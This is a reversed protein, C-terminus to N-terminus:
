ENPYFGNRLLYVIEEGRGGVQRYWDSDIAEDACREWNGIQAAYITKKFLSFVPLGMNFMMDVFAEQRAVTFTKFEDKGFLTLCDQIASEIDEKLMMDAVRESIGNAQINAGYGLTLKDASCRYPMHRGDRNKNHGEHAKIMGRLRRFNM